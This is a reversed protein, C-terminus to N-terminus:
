LVICALSKKGRAPLSMLLVHTMSGYIQPRQRGLFCFVRREGLFLCNQELITMKPNTIHQTLAKSLLVSIRHILKHVFRQFDSIKFLGM